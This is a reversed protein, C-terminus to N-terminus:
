PSQPLFRPHSSRLSYCQFMYIIHSVSRWDLNSAHSMTSLAPASPRGLPIPHPSIHSPPDPHPVCTFGHIIWTLIHCFGSCHQLTILRWNFYIFKLFSIIAIYSYSIIYGLCNCKQSSICSLSKLASNNMSEWTLTMYIKTLITTTDTLGLIRAKTGLLFFRAVWYVLGASAVRM